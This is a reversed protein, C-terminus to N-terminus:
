LHHVEFSTRDLALEIDLFAANNVAALASHTQPKRNNERHNHQFHVARAAAM